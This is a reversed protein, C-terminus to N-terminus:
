IFQEEAFMYNCVKFDKELELYIDKLFFFM